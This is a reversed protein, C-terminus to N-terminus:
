LVTKSFEVSINCFNKLLEKTNCSNSIASNAISMLESINPMNPILCHNFIIDLMLLNRIAISQIKLRPVIGWTLTKPRHNQRKNPRVAAKKNAANVRIIVLKKRSLEHIFIM